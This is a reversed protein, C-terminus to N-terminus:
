IAQNVIEEVEVVCIKGCTAAPQNFNRATKRFTLNGSEDAKWAKVIALDAFIGRELIYEQGDFMKAEKGSQGSDRKSPGDLGALYLEEKEPPKQLDKLEQIMSLMSLSDDHSSQKDEEFNNAPQNIEFESYKTNKKNFRPAQYSRNNIHTVNHQKASHTSRTDDQASTYNM